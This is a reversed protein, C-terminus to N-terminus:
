IRALTWAVIDHLAERMAADLGSIISGHGSGALVAENVFTKSAVIRGNRDNVIRVSIESRALGTSPEAEFARIETLIQYDAVLGEGPRGVRGVRGSREFSEVLRAQLLKPLRDSWQADGLYTIESGSPRVVIRETDLSAVATAVPVLIQASSGGINGFETPASLDYTQPAKGGGVIASCGALLLALTVGTVITVFGRM